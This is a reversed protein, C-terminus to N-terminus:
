SWSVSLHRWIWKALEWVAVGTICGGLLFAVLMANVARDIDRGFGPGM